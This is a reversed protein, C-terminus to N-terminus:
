RVAGNVSSTVAIIQNMFLDRLEIYQARTMLKQEYLAQIDAQARWLKALEGRSELYIQGRQFTDMNEILYPGIKAPDNVTLYSITKSVEDVKELERYYDRVSRVNGTPYHQTFRGVFPLEEKVPTHGRDEYQYWADLTALGDAGLMGGVTRTIFEIGAPSAGRRLISGIFGEADINMQQRFNEAMPSINDSIIRAPMSADARGMQTPDIGLERQPVIDANLGPHKNSWLGVPVIGFAPIMNLAADNAIGGVLQETTIPDQGYMQDLAAEVTTGFLQGIVHPKRVRIIEGDPQRYFWYRSGSETTRLQRIEEDDKSAYWLMMTPMGIYAMGKMMLSTAAGARSGGSPPTRFPHAGTHAVLEDLAAIAPRSFMTLRHWARIVPLAGEMRTNGTAHWAAYVAELTSEGHDLARLAEGVRAAEAFPTVLTKYAEIPQLERIQEVAIRLASPEGGVKARARSYASASKMAQTPETAYPLSQITAPGGIDLIRQYEPSRRVAHWWGRISDVGPRFGNKSQLAAQFTDIFMQTGIFAPNYVVGKTITQQVSTLMKGVFGQLIDTEAPLMTKFVDFVDQPVRYSRLVGDEFITMVPNTADLKELGMDLAFALAEDKSMSPMIKKIAAAYTEYVGATPGRQREVRKLFYDQVEGKPLQKVFGIYAQKIKAYEMARLYKPTMEITREVPNLVPRRNGKKRKELPNPSIIPDQGKAIREVEAYTVGDGFIRFMPAYWLESLMQEHVEPSLNGALVQTWALQHNYQRMDQAAQIYEPPANGVILEAQVLDMPAKYGDIGERELTHLAVMVQGLGEQDGNVSGLIAAISKAPLQVPEGNTGYVVPQSTIWRETTSVYRGFTAALKGPDIQAPIGKGQTIKELGHTARVAQSYAKELVQYITKKPPVLETRSIVAKPLTSQGPFFERPPQRSKWNRYAAETGAALGYTGGAFVLFRLLPSENEEATAAGYLGAALSGIAKPMNAQPPPPNRQARENLLKSLKERFFPAEEGAEKVKMDAWDILDALQEDKLKRPSQMVLKRLEGERPGFRAEPTSGVDPTLFQQRQASQNDLGQGVLTADGSSIPPDVTTDRLNARRLSEAALDALQPAVSEDGAELRKFLQEKLADIQADPLAQLQTTPDTDPYPSLAQDPSTADPNPLPQTPDLGTLMREAELMPGVAELKTDIEALLKRVEFPDEGLTNLRQVIGDLDMPGVGLHEPDISFMDMESGGDLESQLYRRLETLSDFQKELDSRQAYGAKIISDDIGTGHALIGYKKDIAQFEKVLRPNMADFLANYLEDQRARWADGEPSSWRPMNGHLETLQRQLEVVNPDSFIERRLQRIRERVEPPVQAYYGTGDAQRMDLHSDVYAEEADVTSTQERLIRSQEINREGAARSVEPDFEDVLSPIFDQDAFMEAGQRSYGLDNVLYNILGDRGGRNFAERAGADERAAFEPGSEPKWGIRDNLHRQVDDPDLEWEAAFREVDRDTIKGANDIILDDLATRADEDLQLASFREAASPEDVTRGVDVELKFRNSAELELASRIEVPLENWTLEAAHKGEDGEGVRPDIGLDSLLQAREVPLTENWWSQGSKEEGVIRPGGDLEIFHKLAREFVGPDWEVPDSNHDIGRVNMDRIFAIRETNALNRYWDLFDDKPQNPRRALDETGPVLPLGKTPTMQDMSDLERKALGHVIGRMVHNPIDDWEFTDYDAWGPDMNHDRLFQRRQENNMSRWKEDIAQVSSDPLDKRWKAQSMWDNVTRIARDAPNDPFPDVPKDLNSLTNHMDYMEGSSPITGDMDFRERAFKILQKQSDSLEDWQPIYDWEMAQLLKDALDPNPYASLEDVVKPGSIGRFWAEDPDDVLNMPNNGKMNGLVADKAEDLTFGRKRLERMLAINKNKLTPDQRILDALVSAANSHDVVGKNLNADPTVGRLKAVDPNNLVLDRYKMIWETQEEQSMSSRDRGSHEKIWKNVDESPVGTWGEPPKGTAEFTGRIHEEEGLIRRQEPSLESLKPGGQSLPRRKEGADYYRQVLDINAPNTMDASDPFGGYEKFLAKQQAPTFAKWWNMLADYREQGKTEIFYATPDDRLTGDGGGLEKIRAEIRDIQKQVKQKTEPSTSKDRLNILEKLWTDLNDKPLALGLGEVAGAGGSQVGGDTNGVPATGEAGIQSQKYAAVIQNKENPPLKSWDKTPNAAQWEKKAAATILKKAEAEAQKKARTTALEGILDQRGAKQEPKLNTPDTLKISPKSAGGWAAGFVADAGMGVLLQKVKEDKPFDDMSTYQLLNIPTGEAVNAAMHAIIRRGGKSSALANVIKKSAEPALRRGAAIFPAASVRAINGYARWGGLIGGAVQGISKAPDGEPNVAENVQMMTEQANGRVNTAADEVKGASEIGAKRLVGAGKQIAAAGLDLAGPLANAIGGALGIVGKGWGTGGGGFTGKDAKDVEGSRYREIQKQIRAKQEPKIGPKSMLKTLADIQRLNDEQARQARGTAWDLRKDVRKKSRWDPSYGSLPDDGQGHMENRWNPNYGQLPDGEM